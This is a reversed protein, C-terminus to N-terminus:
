FAKRAAQFSAYVVLNGKEGKRVFENKSKWQNFSGWEQTTHNHKLASAWLIVINIGQYRNGTIPNKPITFPVSAKEAWPKQWPVTGKELQEIITDTVLQQLDQKSNNNPTTSTEM